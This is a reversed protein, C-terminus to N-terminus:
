GVLGLSLQAPEGREDDLKRMSEHLDEGVSRWDATLARRDAEHENNGENYSDFTAGLDLTRALGSLLSPVAFLFDSRSGM